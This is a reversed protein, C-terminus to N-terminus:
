FQLATYPSVNLWLEAFEHLDSIDITGNGDFDFKMSDGSRQWDQCFVALEGMDIIGDLNLDMPHRLEEDVVEANLATTISFSDLYPEDGSITFNVQIQGPNSSVEFVQTSRYWTYEDSSGIEYDEFAAPTINNADDIGVVMDGRSYWDYQVFVKLAGQDTGTPITATLTSNDYELGRYVGGYVGDVWEPHGNTDSSDALPHWTLFPNIIETGYLETEEQWVVSPEGFQNDYYGDPQMGQQCRGQSASLLWHQTSYGQQQTWDPIWPDDFCDEDNIFLLSPVVAHPITGSTQYAAKSYLKVHENDEPDDAGEDDRGTVALGLNELGEAGESQNYLIWSNVIDTVNWYCVGDKYVMIGDSSDLIHDGEVYFQNPSVTGEFMTMVDLDVPHASILVARSSDGMTGAGDMSAMRLWASDVEEEPMSNPDFTLFTLTEYSMIGQGADFLAHVNSTLLYTNQSKVMSAMPTYFDTDVEVLSCAFCCCGVLMVFLIYIYKNNM